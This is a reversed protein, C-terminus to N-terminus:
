RAAEEGILEIVRDIEEPANYLHPSLRMWGLGFEGIVRTRVKESRRALRRQLELGEVGDVHFSVMGVGLAPDAPSAIHVGPVDALGAMLRTRLYRARAHIREPGVTEHFRLAAMLGALRSEDLTGLHNFRQAGLELDDWGGSALTPWLRTRWPEAMYLFGTGQPALLWKHPSSAYFDAAIANLDVRMLGPPHAGDVVSIIGRERCLAAIEAVPMIVGSTFTVHSVSVVRTAPTIGDRVLDLLQGPDTPPVPMPLKRLRVGRRAEVLEWCCRGGIHEHDTTLVEDGPALELGHAVFNMGETTNRPFVFGAPDGSLLRGLATRLEEWDVGPPYTMAVRRTAEVVADVVVRPQPGLTGVNLYLRDEPILFEDRVGRWFAQGELKRVPALRRAVADLEGPWVAAAVAGGALRKLFDRRPAGCDRPGDRDVPM